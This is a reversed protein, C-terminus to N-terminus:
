EHDGLSLRCSRAECTIFKSIMPLHRQPVSYQPVNQRFCSYSFDFLTDLAMYHLSAAQPRNAIPWRLSFSSQV